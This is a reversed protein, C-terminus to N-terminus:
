DEEKLLKAIRAEEAKTLTVTALKPRRRIYVVALSLGALLLVPGAWWLIVNAGTMSPRLLVFEGYRAVLSAIIEADSDGALLRERVLLRLDRAIEANSDDINENQCVVCRLDKSIVRARAELVPDDLMEDPTVALVPSALLAIILVLKRM